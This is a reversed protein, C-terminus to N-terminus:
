HSHKNIYRLYKFLGCLTKADEILGQDAAELAQELTLLIPDLYESDEGQLPSYELDRALFLHLYENCFGPATFVGGLYTLKKAFYGIEEQLERQACADKSEYPDLTGAPLELLIKGASRRWQKIFWIKGDSAIPIMVCAGPHEVMDYEHIQDDLNVKCSYFSLLRGQHLLTKEIFGEKEQLQQKLANNQM